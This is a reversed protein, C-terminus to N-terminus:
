ILISSFCAEIGQAIPGQIKFEARSATLAHANCTQEMYKDLLFAIFICNMSSVVQLVLDARTSLLAVSFKISGLITAHSQRGIIRSDLGCAMQFMSPVALTAPCIVWFHLSEM